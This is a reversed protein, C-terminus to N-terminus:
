YWYKAPWCPTLLLVRASPYSAELFSVVKNIIVVPPNVWNLKDNWDEQAFADVGGSHPEIFLSNFNDCVRNNETAFRDCDLSGFAREIASIYNKSVRYYDDLHVRSLADACANDKSTIFQPLLEINYEDM